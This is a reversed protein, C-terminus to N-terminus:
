KGEVEKKWYDYLGEFGEMVIEETNGDPYTIECESRGNDIINWFDTVFSEMWGDPIDMLMAAISDAYNPLACLDQERLCINGFADEIRAIGKETKEVRRCFKLFKEKNVM